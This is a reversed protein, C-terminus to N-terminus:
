VRRVPGHRQLKAAKEGENLRTAEAMACQKCWPGKELRATTKWKKGDFYVNYNGSMFELTWSCGKCIAPMAAQLRKMFAEDSGMYM